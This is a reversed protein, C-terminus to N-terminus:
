KLAQLKERPGHALLRRKSAGEWKKLCSSLPAFDIFLPPCLGFLPAYSFYWATYILLSLSLKYARLYM